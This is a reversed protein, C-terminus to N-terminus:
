SMEMENRQALVPVEIRMDLVVRGADQHMDIAVGQAPLLARVLGLGTGFGTGRAFDFGIPLHGPNEIRIRAMGVDRELTVQVGAEAETGSLNKVANSVLENLILAVAVTENEQIRLVGCGEPLGAVKVAQGSATAISACIAPLLECVMVGHQTTRGHLGHVVAISQVQRIASELMPRVWPNRSAERRLLGAVTQLNNKIRHHVERTLVDRHNLIDERQAQELRRNTALSLALALFSTGIFTIFGHLPQIWLADAPLPMGGPDWAAHVWVLALAVERVNARLALWLLFPLLLFPPLFNATLGFRTPQALLLTLLGLLLLALGIELRRLRTQTFEGAHWCLLLPAFLLVADFQSLLLSSVQWALAHERFGEAEQLAMYGLPLALIGPLLGAFLLLRFLDGIGPLTRVMGARSALFSGLSAQLAVGLGLGLASWLPQAQFLAALLTGLAAAPITRWGWLLAAGVAVGAPPWFLAPALPTAMLEYALLGSLLCASATFLGQLPPSHLLRTVSSANPQDLCGPTNGLVGHEHVM